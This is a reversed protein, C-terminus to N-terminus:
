SISLNQVSYDNMAKVIVRGIMRALSKRTREIMKFLLKENMKDYHGLYENIDGGNKIFNRVDAELEDLHRLWKYLLTKKIAIRFGNIYDNSNMLYQYAGNAYANSEFRYSIYILRAVIWEMKDRCNHMLHAAIRYNGANSYPKGRLCIEFAHEVEHQILQYFEMINPKGKVTIFRVTIRKGNNSTMGVNEYDGTIYKRDSFDYATWQVEIQQNLFPETFDGQRITLFQGGKVAPRRKFDNLIRAGVRRSFRTVNDSVSLEESILEDLKEEILSKIEEKQM